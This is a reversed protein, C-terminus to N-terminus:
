TPCRGASSCTDSQLWVGRGRSPRCGWGGADGLLGGLALRGPPGPAERM